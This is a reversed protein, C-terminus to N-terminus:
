RKSWPRHISGAAPSVTVPLLTTRVVTSGYGTAPLTGPVTVPPTNVAVPLPLPAGQRGPPVIDLEALPPPLGIASVFLLAAAFHTPVTSGVLMALGSYPAM